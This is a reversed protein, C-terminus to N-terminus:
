QWLEDGLYSSGLLAFLSDSASKTNAGDFVVDNPQSGAPFTSLITGDSARLKTMTNVIANAVWINVGDFAVGRPLSGAPFTLGTQNAEYWQLTAVRLPNIYVCM